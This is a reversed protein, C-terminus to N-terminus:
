NLEHKLQFLLTFMYSIWSIFSFLVKLCNDNNAAVTSESWLSVNCVKLLRFFYSPTHCKNGSKSVQLFHKQMRTNLYSLGSRTNMSILLLDYHTGLTFSHKKDWLASLSIYFTCFKCVFICRTKWSVSLVVVVKLQHKTVRPYGTLCVVCTLFDRSQNSETASRSKRPMFIM